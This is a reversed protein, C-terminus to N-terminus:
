LGNYDGNVLESYRGYFMTLGCKWVVLWSLDFLQFGPGTEAMADWAALPVRRMLDVMSSAMRGAPLEM